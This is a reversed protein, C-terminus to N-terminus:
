WNYNPLLTIVWNGTKLAMKGPQKVGNCSSGSGMKYKSDVTSFKIEELLLMMGEKPPLFFMTECCVSCITSLVMVDLRFSDDSKVRPFGDSFAVYRQLNMNHKTEFESNRAVFLFRGESINM